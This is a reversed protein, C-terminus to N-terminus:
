PIVIGARNFRLQATTMDDYLLHVEILQVSRRPFSRYPLGDGDLVAAPAPQDPRCEPMDWVEPAAGNVGVRIEHLGCRWAWLHSVYLLDQGGFERVSIWNGRTANLIPRVELATLFRGSAIQPEAVFGTAPEADSGPTESPLAAPDDKSEPMVAIEEGTDPEQGAASTGKDEQPAAAVVKKTETEPSTAVANEPTEAEGPAQAVDMPAAALAPAASDAAVQDVTALSHVSASFMLLFVELMVRAKRKKRRSQWEGPLRGKGFKLNKTEFNMGIILPM